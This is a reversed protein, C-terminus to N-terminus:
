KKSNCTPWNDKENKFTQVILNRLKLSYNCFSDEPFSSNIIAIQHCGLRSAFTDQWGDDTKAVFDLVVEFTSLMLALYANYKELLVVEEPTPDKKAEMDVYKQGQDQPCSFQSQEASYKVFELWYARGTAERQIEAGREIQRYTLFVSALIALIAVFSAAGGFIAQWKEWRRDEM